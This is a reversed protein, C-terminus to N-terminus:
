RLSMTTKGPLPLSIDDASLGDRWADMSDQWRGAATDHEPTAQHWLKPGFVTVHHLNCKASNGQHPSWYHLSAIFPARHLCKIQCPLLSLIEKFHVYM